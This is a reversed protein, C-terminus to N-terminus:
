AKYKEAVIRLESSRRELRTFFGIIRDLDPYEDESIVGDEVIKLLTEQVEKSMSLDNSTLVAFRYLNDINAQEIPQAIKKGIPCENCCYTNLLEPSDYVQSMILVKDVPPTNYAEKEYKALSELSIGIEAAAGERYKLKANKQSAKLRANLFANKNLESPMKSM